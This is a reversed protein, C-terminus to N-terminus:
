SPREGWNVGEDSNYQVGLMFLADAFGMIGLGIKRNGKCVKDIEALPYNNADIVDDLFRTSEHITERLGEWDVAAEATSPNEIFKPWTSAAWTQVGRVAAAAAGRLPNTAEIRGVHPTPNYQNIRTSSSWARSARGAVREQRYLGLDGAAHLVQPGARAGRRRRDGGALPHRVGLHGARAPLLYTKKTRPNKVVHPSDADARFAEMWEDTVKM